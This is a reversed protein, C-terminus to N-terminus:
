PMKAALRIRDGVRLDLDSRLVRATATRETV